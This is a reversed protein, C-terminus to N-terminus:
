ILLVEVLRRVRRLPIPAVAAFSVRLRKTVLTPFRISSSPGKACNGGPQSAANKVHLVSLASLIAVKPNSSKAM